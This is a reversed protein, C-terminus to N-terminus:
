HKNLDMLFECAAQYGFSGLGCIVGDAIDSIYSKHRFKERQYINSIHVEILKRNINQTKYFKLADRIAISTHTYAGLNAIIADSEVRQIFDIIEGEHNSQFLDIKISSDKAIKQCQSLIDSLTDKGYINTERTGLLNLNAGNIITITSIINM